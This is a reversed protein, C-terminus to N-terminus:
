IPSYARDYASPSVYLVQLHPFFVNKYADLIDFTLTCHATTHVMNEAFDYKQTYRVLVRLPM